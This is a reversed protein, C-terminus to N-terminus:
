TARISLITLFQKQIHCEGKDSREVRLALKMKQFDAPGAVTPEARPDAEGKVHKYLGIM